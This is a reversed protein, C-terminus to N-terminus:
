TVVFCEVAEGTEEAGEGVLRREQVAPLVVSDGLAYRREGPGPVYDYEPQLEFRRDRGNPHVAERQGAGGYAARQGYEDHESVLVLGAAAHRSSVSRKLEYIYRRALVSHPCVRRM